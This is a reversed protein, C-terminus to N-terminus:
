YKTVSNEILINNIWIKDISFNSKNVNDITTFLRISFKEGIAPDYLLTDNNKPALELKIINLTELYEKEKTTFYEEIYLELKSSKNTKAYIKILYENNNELNTISYMYLDDEITYENVEYLLYDEHYVQINISNVLVNDSINLYLAIREEEIKTKEITINGKNNCSYIFPFIILLLLILLKKKM